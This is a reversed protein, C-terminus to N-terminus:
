RDRQVLRQVLNWEYVRGDDDGTYVLQPMPSICTIAADVNAGTESKPNAHDLRRLFELIWRGNRGVTKRWVNVRGRKHGTFVLSNELWENGSGEYFACSHVFDDHGEAGCVNQDLMLDGNLTYLLVNPGSCLMIEGTVDNISACEVPRALPLKRIFELRNLDWLLSIGDQSVTIFTSFAKSVAISTVPTKHGFLSTRPHLDVPKGPGTHVTYVSVVCDEGATILTKSDAFTLTSIQGIHLNEFLGAPKRNDSFFFRVSNDAYGWELFKDYQPPLNVRFPSACLLRDLKPVYILSAVREHSDLLPHPLKTLANISTDLRKVVCRDNERPPHPRTFIQHPTQGFNHIIGTTIALEQPDTINDLDKAGKYSLPHFINLSEVAAEGRQKYGFVLDIWKHLNQSVYPSELAERHKQIFIKPDGKAWPPLIVNDVKGGGGQRVGFNYGNINTLFEPLYFFEPILERVDSGNEKSASSWAGEISFFLRDPHDFTGGQLLIFSQVFPPLRILYSCVIMASSYHTGYHFPQEGIEVLSRYRTAYDSTRSPTQAGMPKSLDRFTAPNNLDLEASTYDALVWPFVPYQTMDNFTRGAMTNVLMLYHFNSMEGKQWRRMMPNWASSNFISGFKAGLTQPAEESFKIGELRWADEPNPLLHPGNTHPCKTSLRAYIDDRLAPDRATLLYSRGDTFFIEIAVDRFLFRRKSISLVDHWRWSRSEQDVRNQSQPRDGPKTGTIIISFPDREEPPAQWVDIIEGDSNQFLSDMMYLADKGIILIGEGADLGVIRSINFVTQVADGQQLRRLVKRNKDEFADEEEADNPGEVLEFDDEPSVGQQSVQESSPESDIFIGAGREVPPKATVPTVGLTSSGSISTNLRLASASVNDGIKRKPQYEPRQQTSYDPLLRLRMRNRGETRDLKWKITQTEGFVAGPRRLDREMKSFTSALFANDDQQDQLLRQHKFHETFYISKMWAGNAMEHRLLINERELGEAHWQRLKDKRNKLRSKATDTTRQNETGVYDEWTKSMGGFFLVDLSPRHQDVWDIFATDDLETLKRFGRALPQQDPAMTQRFLASCEEPKQVLMIRWLMSSILRIDARPDVLKNYLQYWLLKMYDDETSLCGLLVTQWYLLKEMTSSAESDQTQPDDMDSLKLLVLKLFSSRITAVASSCLRVSKTAAVEPRQLYELLMGTFDLMTDAGHIFWGEFIAEVMHVNLRAMNQLVKPELLSKQDLQIASGLHTITNRLIYTEFYAQHEQFGPPVKLFLGFGPFEKRMLIQDSFVNTILELVGELVVNSVQQTTVRKKPSMVHNLRVPAPAVPTEQSAVMIFSSPRRLPTGRGLGPSPLLPDTANANGSRVIPIAKSASGPVPRIIVDGGEFTLASDKSNLEADPAVPDASVIIPYLASLLLRVYDSSLAFDRFSASRSHMDALFRVVAQLVVAHSNVREKEPLHARRPELAKGLEMSRARPRTQVAELNASQSKNPDGAPSDPDDQYKLIDRLGHQLMSTIVLLVDPYVVKSNGFIEILSFFDFSKEFNINAVDYGFLISFLITWLTPIDWWQKLRHAMIWFGGTKTSFKATYGSPQTVLLRALIKCGYVVTEPDDEALLYLLWKNTVTKAFKRIDVVNNKSCLLRTYMELIKIGLQKKTLLKSGNTAPPTVDITPRKLIGPVPTSSRSTASGPKPTRSLSGVPTHFAYTVFLALFRHVETSYNCKVLGEFSSMFHPLIDESITEAKLADLLRKIIRMRLLRRSNFQHHKSKVAFTMFQKYYLEQTLPASKRWTDPDILLIRYALPNVIFSEIPDAHNYGVFNLVLSLLQFSLKDREDSTLMLRWSPNDSAAMSYGLKARLLMSLIAYGNDREMAESNRWSTNICCLMLEVSRVLEESTSAREVLKLTVPTYGGLRWLNDDFYFPTVLVPDGTLLAVGHPRLLADNICPLAANIAVATGNKTTSHFLSNASNKSLSRFLLSDMFRGDTRFVTRPLTSMLVKHEPVITSAKDRIAKLIDSSEDKGPHFVENRLGLAASAEYTQFGGLCDQFNGQYRPGLRYHVALLDDSLVEELLHASAISWKSYVLGPGLHTSLDRPTGLFAQVPNTKNNSSTFSAFSETSGNSIPPPNPYAARIQEAFEGNVYLSAKSAVMTKPRRHVIAVHYWQKEQFVVSKFRVSPRSSTVSTQLIFNRTDREIYALLFCTQTSDFVGFLTTHSKPDFKDIRIWASFTYGPASQPPFARGLSPLEVSAHGHLSLDFQIFPPGNYKEAMSLCFESAAPDQCCLLFQADALQDIGLYMLSRSLPLVRDREEETLNLEPSFLLRLFRSLVGTGHLCTLSFFSASAVTALTTLVILSAPNPPAGQSRPISEWFGVITRIIEPNQFVTTPGVIERMKAETDGLSFSVRPSEEAAEPNQEQGEVAESPIRADNAASAVSRCLEDLRQDDLSFSLLKGFLQCNTWLDSDSGGLGISAIIQELAEWGGGEVRDQFYRRNGPHGRFTASVVALVIHILDFLGSREAETRKQPNYFGSFSRLLDLLRQFGNLRRFDDQQTLPPQGAAVHQHLQRTQELLEDINPYEGSSAAATTDVLRDLLGQLVESAKSTQHASASTSSRFRRTRLAQMKSAM